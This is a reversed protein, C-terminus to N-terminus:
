NIEEPQNRSLNAATRFLEEEITRSPEPDHLLRGAETLAPDNRILAYALVLNIPVDLSGTWDWKATMYGRRYPPPQNSPEFYKPRGPQDLHLAYRPYVQAFRLLLVSAMLADNPKKSTKPTSHHRVAAYFASKALFERAEYDRRAKLYLREDPVQQNEAEPLHYPYKHFVGPAVEVSEEPIKKDKDKAPVSDNPFVGACKRCTVVNPKRISWALPDTSEPAACGPCRCYRLGAQVPVLDAVAKPELKLLAEADPSNWFRTQWDEPPLFREFWPTAGAEAEWGEASGVLSALCGAVFGLAAFRGWGSPTKMM